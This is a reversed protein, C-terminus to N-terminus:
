FILLRAMKNDIINWFLQMIVKISRGIPRLASQQKTGLLRQATGRQESGSYSMIPPYNNNEGSGSQGRDQTQWSSSVGCLCILIDRWLMECQGASRLYFKNWYLLLPGYYNNHSYNYSHRTTFQVFLNCPRQLLSQRENIIFIVM